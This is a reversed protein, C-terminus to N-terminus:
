RIIIPRKTAMMEAIKRRASNLCRWLTGRSVGMKRAAEEQTLGEYYILIFAEFEDISMIIPNEKPSPPERIGYAIKSSWTSPPLYTIIRPKM